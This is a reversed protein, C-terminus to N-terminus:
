ITKLSCIVIYNWPHSCGHCLEEALMSEYNRSVHANPLPSCRFRILAAQYCDKDFINYEDESLPEYFEGHLLSPRIM